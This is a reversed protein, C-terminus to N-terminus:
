RFMERWMMILDLAAFILGVIIMPFVFLKLGSVIKRQKIDDYAKDSYDSLAKKNKLIMITMNWAVAIVWFTFGATFPILALNSKTFCRAILTFFLSFLLVGTAWSLLTIKYELKKM